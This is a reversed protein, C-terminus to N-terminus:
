RSLEPRSVPDQQLMLLTQVSSLAPWTAQQARPAKQVPVTVWGPEGDVLVTVSSPSPVAIIPPPGIVVGGCGVIVLGGVFGCPPYM